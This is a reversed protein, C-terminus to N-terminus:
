LKVRYIHYTYEADFTDTFRGDDLPLVRDEFLVEVEDVPVGAPLQLTRSGPAGSGDVMAFIYAHGRHVKLMTDLGEGFDHEYSQTNLVPALDSIRSNVERAADVQDQGCFNELVQSLRFISGGRCPGTLSQNFYVIGRAENILSSMVAGQLQGASINATFPGEGPGGNLNEVFQWIAQLEGDAADQHRVSEVAKGYSSATRCYQELVPVIYIDRYPKRDCSPITYWYMDMSVVDTYGNIYQQADEQVMDESIVMQTFNAYTFYGEPAADKLKQLHQQGEAAPFRGDVEDDLFWGVWNKSDETFTENLSGGIWYLDHDEFFSYPTTDAMGIYTNIGQAKDYEAEADSSIGNYWAVIPFFSPDAWGAADTRAFQEWYAPGGEWPIRPLDWSREATEAASPGAGSIDATSPTCGPVLVATTALGALMTRSWNM